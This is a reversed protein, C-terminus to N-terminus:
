GAVTTSTFNDWTFFIAMYCLLFSFMPELFARERMIAPRVVQVASQNSLKGIAPALGLLLSKTVNGLAVVIGWPLSFIYIRTAIQGGLVLLYELYSNIKM